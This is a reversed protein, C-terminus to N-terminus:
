SVKSYYACIQGQDGFMVIILAFHVDFDRFENPVRMTLEFTAGLHGRIM